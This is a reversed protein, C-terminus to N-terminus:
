RASIQCSLFSLVVYRAVDNLLSGSMLQNIFRYHLIDSSRVVNKLQCHNTETRSVYLDAAFVHDFKYGLQLIYFLYKISVDRDYVRSYHKIGLM